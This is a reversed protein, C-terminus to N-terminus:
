LFWGRLLIGCTEKLGSRTKDWVKNQGLIFKKYLFWWVSRCGSVTVSKGVGASDSYPPPGTIVHNNTYHLAYKLTTTLALINSCYSCSLLVLLTNAVFQWIVEAAASRRCARVAMFKSIFNQPRQPRRPMRGGCRAHLNWCSNTYSRIIKMGASFPEQNNVTPWDKCLKKGQKVRLLIPRPKFKWVM